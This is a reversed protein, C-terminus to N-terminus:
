PNKCSQNRGQLTSGHKLAHNNQKMDSATELLSEVTTRLAEGDESESNSM